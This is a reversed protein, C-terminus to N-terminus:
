FYLLKTAELPMVNMGLKHSDTLQNCMSMVCYIYRDEHFLSHPSFPSTNICFTEFKSQQCLDFCACMTNTLHQLLLIVSLHIIHICYYIFHITFQLARDSIQIIYSHHHICQLLYPLLFNIHFQLNIRNLYKNKYRRPKPINSNHQMMQKSYGHHHNMFKKRFHVWFKRIWNSM